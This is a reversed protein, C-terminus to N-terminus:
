VKWESRLFEFHSDTEAEHVIRAPFIKTPKFLIKGVQRRLSPHTRMLMITASNGYVATVFLYIAESYGVAFNGLSTSNLVVDALLVILIKFCMVTILVPQIARSM